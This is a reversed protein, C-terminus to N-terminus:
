CNCLVSSQKCLEILKERYGFRAQAVAESKAFLDASRDPFKRKLSSYLTENALFTQYIGDGSKSAPSPPPKPPFIFINDAKSEAKLGNSLSIDVASVHRPAPPAGLLWVLRCFAALFAWTAAHHVLSAVWYVRSTEPWSFGFINVIGWAPHSLILQCYFCGLCVCAFVMWRTLERRQARDVVALLVGTAVIFTCDNHSLSYLCYNGVIVAPLYRVWPWPSSRLRWTLVACLVVGFGAQLLNLASMPVWRFMLHMLTGPCLKTQNTVDVGSQPVAVILDLLNTSSLIAPPVSCLLCTVVAIFCVKFQRQMLLPIALMIGMQPKTMMIAWALGAAIPKERDLAWLFVCLSAALILGYNGVYFCSSVGYQVLLAAGLAYSGARRWSCGRNRAYRCVAWLIGGLAVVMLGYYVKWATRRGFLTLWGFYTYSWPSYTGLIQQSPFEEPALYYRYQKSKADGIQVAYPNIGDRVCSIENYRMLFDIGIRENCGSYKEDIWGKSFDLCCPIAIALVFLVSLVLFIFEHKGFPARTHLNLM